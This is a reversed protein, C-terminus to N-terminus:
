GNVCLATDAEIFQDDFGTELGANVPRALTTCAGSVADPACPGDLAGLYRQQREKLAGQGTSTARPSGFRHATM